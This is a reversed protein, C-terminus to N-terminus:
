RSFTFHGSTNNRYFAGGGVPVHFRDFDLRRRVTDVSPPRTRRRRVTTPKQRNNKSRGRPLETPPPPSADLEGEEVTDPVQASPVDSVNAPPTRPSQQDVPTEVTPTADGEGSGGHLVKRSIKPEELGRNDAGVTDASTNNSDIPTDPQKRKGSGPPRGRRPKTTESRTDPAVMESVTSDDVPKPSVPEAQIRRRPKNQAGSTSATVSPAASQKNRLLRLELAKERAKKLNELRAAALSEKDGAIATVITKSSTRPM